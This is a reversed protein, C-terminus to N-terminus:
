DRFDEFAAPGFEFCDIGDQEADDTYLNNGYEDVPNFLGIDLGVFSNCYDDILYDEDTYTEYTKTTQPTFPDDEERANIM